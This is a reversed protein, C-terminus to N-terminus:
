NDHNRLYMGRDIEAQKMGKRPMSLQPHNLFRQPRTIEQQATEQATSELVPGDAESAIHKVVLSMM